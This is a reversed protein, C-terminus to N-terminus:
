GVSLANFYPEAFYDSYVFNHVRKAVLFVGNVIGYPVWPAYKTMIERDLRQYAKTRASGTLSAAHDMKKDLTPSDLYALNVNNRAQISRGDFNVNIYDFADFYDACWGATAMDMDVGRTGLVSFYISGPLPRDRTNVGLKQLEYEVVEAVSTGVPGAGHMVVVTGPIGNPALKKAKALNAGRISYIDYPKYGDVGPVLIQDSRKGGYKGMLRVLAPRDIAWNV